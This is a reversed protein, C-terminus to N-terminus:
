SFTLKISKKTKVKTKKDKENSNNCKPCPLPDYCYWGEYSEENDDYVYGCGRCFDCIERNKRSNM